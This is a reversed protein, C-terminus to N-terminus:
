QLETETTQYEDHKRLVKNADWKTIAPKQIKLQQTHIELSNGSDPLSELLQCCEISLRTNM